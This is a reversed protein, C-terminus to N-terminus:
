VNENPKESFLLTFRLLSVANLIVSALVMWGTYKAIEVKKSASKIM